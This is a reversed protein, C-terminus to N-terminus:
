LYERVFADVNEFRKATLGVKRYEELYRDLIGDFAKATAHLDEPDYGSFPDYEGIEWEGGIESLMGSLSTLSMFALHRNGTEAALYMKGRWNSFMEEYTGELADATAPKRGSGTEREANGPIAGDTEEPGERVSVTKGFRAGERAFVEATERMLISLREKVEDASAASVVREILGCFDEPRKEMGNLEEYARKVGLRFYRKNLMAVANELYYVAGGAGERAKAENPARRAKDAYRKAEELNKLAKDFDEASLPASLKEGTLKRLGELRELYKEDACYVIKAEMLKSIHPHAYRADNALDEWGTCYVDYGVMDDELVFACELRRGSEGDILVLLDLDSRPPIDGTMFSGYVGILALAEPCVKEAKKIM